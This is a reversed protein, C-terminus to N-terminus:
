REEGKAFPRSDRSIPTAPRGGDSEFLDGTARSSGSDHASPGVDRGTGEVLSAHAPDQGYFDRLCHYVVPLRDRLPGPREFFHETAVAFFEAPDSAAYDDLLPPRGRRARSAFEEYEAILARSWASRRSRRTRADGPYDPGSATDLLHAFEHLAVNLGDDALRRRSRRAARGPNLEDWALVVVGDGAEGLREEEWELSVPSEGFGGSDLPASARSDYATPAILVVALRRYEDPGRGLTLLCAWAAVLAQVEETAVFGRIGEVRITGLFVKIRAILEALEEPELRASPRVQERILDLWGPPTPAARLRALRRARMGFIEFM